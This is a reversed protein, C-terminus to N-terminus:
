SALPPYARQRNLVQFPYESSPSPSCTGAVYLPPCSTRPEKFVRAPRGHGGEHLFPSVHARVKRFAKAANAAIKLFRSASKAHGFRLLPLFTGAQFSAADEDAGLLSYCIVLLEEGWEREKADM